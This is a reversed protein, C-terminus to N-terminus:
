EILSAELDCLYDIYSILPKGDVEVMVAADGLFERHCRWLYLLVQLLAKRESRFGPYFSRGISKRDPYLGLWQGKRLLRHSQSRPFHAQFELFTISDEYRGREM